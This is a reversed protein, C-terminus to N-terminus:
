KKLTIGCMIKTHLDFLDFVFYKLCGDSSNEATLGLVEFDAFVEQELVASRRKGDGVEGLQKTFGVTM